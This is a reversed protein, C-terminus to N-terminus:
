YNHLHRLVLLAKISHPPSHGRLFTDIDEENTYMIIQFHEVLSRIAAGGGLLTLERQRQGFEVRGVLM